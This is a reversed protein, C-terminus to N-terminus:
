GKVKHGRRILLERVRDRLEGQLEITGDKVAGGTGCARKLEACLDRLFAQNRPLGDVVTVIKGGRGAREMRLKAVMKAPVPEEADATACKCDALPQGCRTCVDGGTSYVLRSNSRSSVLCM